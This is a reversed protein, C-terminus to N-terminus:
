TCARPVLVVAVCGGGWSYTAAGWGNNKMFRGSCGSWNWGGSMNVNIGFGGGADECGEDDLISREEECLRM